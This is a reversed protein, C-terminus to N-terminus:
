FREHASLGDIILRFATLGLTSLGVMALFELRRFALWPAGSGIAAILVAAILSAQGVRLCLETRRYRVDYDYLDALYFLMMTVAVFLTVKPDIARDAMAGAGGRVIAVSGLLAALDGVITLLLIKSIYHGFIRWM